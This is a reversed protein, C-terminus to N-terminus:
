KKNTVEFSTPDDQVAPLLSIVTASEAAPNVHSEFSKKYYSFNDQSFRDIQCIHNRM